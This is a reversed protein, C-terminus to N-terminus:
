CLIGNQNSQYTLVMLLDYLTHLGWGMAMKTTVTLDLKAHHYTLLTFSLLMIMGAIANSINASELIKTMTEYTPAPNASDIMAHLCYKIDRHDRETANLTDVDVGLEAGITKWVRYHEKEVKFFRELNKANVTLAAYCILLLKM